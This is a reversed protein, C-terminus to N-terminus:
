LPRKEYTRMLLHFTCILLKSVDDAKGNKLIVGHIELSTSRESGDGNFFRGKQGADLTTNSGFIIIVKGSHSVSLGCSLYEACCKFILSDQTFCVLRFDIENTYAGMQFTPSLTINASASASACATVLQTWSTIDVAVMSTSASTNTHVAILISSQDTLGQTAAAGPAPFLTLFVFLLERCPIKLGTLKSFQKDFGLACATSV